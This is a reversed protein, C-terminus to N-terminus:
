EELTGLFVLFACVMCLILVLVRHTKFEIMFKNIIEYSIIGWSLCLVVRCIWRVIKRPKM